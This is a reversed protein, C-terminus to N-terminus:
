FEVEKKTLEQTLKVDVDPNILDKSSENHAKNLNKSQYSQHNMQYHSNMENNNRFQHRESFKQYHKQDEEDLDM